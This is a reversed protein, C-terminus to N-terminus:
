RGDRQVLHAESARCHGSQRLAAGHSACEANPVDRLKKEERYVPCLRRVSRAYSGPLLAAVFFNM